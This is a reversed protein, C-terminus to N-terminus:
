QSVGKKTALVAEASSASHLYMKAEEMTGFGVTNDEWMLHYKADPGPRHGQVARVARGTAGRVYTGDPDDFVNPIGETFYDWERGLEDIVENIVQKPEGTSKVLVRGYLRFYVVLGTDPHLRLIVRSPDIGFITAVRECIVDKEQDTDVYHFM